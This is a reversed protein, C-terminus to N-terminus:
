LRVLLLGQPFSGVMGYSHHASSLSLLHHWIWCSHPGTHGILHPSLLIMRGQDLTMSFCQGKANIKNHWQLETHFGPDWMSFLHKTYRRKGRWDCSTGQLFPHFVEIRLLNVERLLKTSPPRWTMRRTPVPEMNCFCIWVSTAAASVLM